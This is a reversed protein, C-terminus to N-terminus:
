SRGCKKDEKLAARAVERSDSCTPCTPHRRGTSIYRLADRLREIEAWQEGNKRLALDFREQLREIEDAAEIEWGKASERLREVLDSM